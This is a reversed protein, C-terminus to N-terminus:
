ESLTLKLSWLVLTSFCNKSPCCMQQPPLNSTNTMRSYYHKWACVCLLPLLARGELVSSSTERSFTTSGSLVNDPLSTLLNVGPPPQLPSLPMPTFLSIYHPLDYALFTGLSCNQRFSSARLMRKLLATSALPWHAPHPSPPDEGAWSGQITIMRTTTTPCQLFVSHRSKTMEPIQDGAIVHHQTLPPSHLLSVTVGHGSGLQKGQGRDTTGTADSQCKPVLFPIINEPGLTHM